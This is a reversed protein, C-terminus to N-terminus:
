QYTYKDPNGVLSTGVPTTVLVDVTGSGPSSLATIQSDSNVTFSEAEAEGFIVTTAAMFGSGTITVATGGATQGAKPALSTVAPVPADDYWYGLAFTDLVSAPTARGGWPQMPDNLNHGPPGGATPLYDQAKYFKRQWNAWIRDVNAHHLFFVPDNPSTAPMMSGGVWMHAANHLGPGKFGELTNRFSRTSTTDWPPSDYPVVNMVTTVDHSTPLTGMGGFRRTLWPVSRDQQNAPLQPDQITSWSTPDNPDHAFPGTTVHDNPPVGNGGMLDDGWVAGNSPDPSDGEVTWDWYPLPVGLDHEFRLLFERHWPGFAPGRHAINRIMPDTGPPSPTMMARSHELTYQDYKGSAKLVKIAAVLASREPASLSDVKKRIAM